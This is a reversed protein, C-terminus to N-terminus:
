QYAWTQFSVGPSTTFHNTGDSFLSNGTGSTTIGITFGPVTMETVQSLYATSYGALEIGISEVNFKINRLAVSVSNNSNIGQTVLGESSIIIESDSIMAEVPGSIAYLSIGITNDSLMVHDLTAVSFGGSSDNYFYIGSSNEGSKINTIFTNSVLLSMGSKVRVYVGNSLFNRISCNLVKLSGGTNFLVGNAASGAGDLTLGQLTVIDTPGANISIASGGSPVAIGAEVGGPNVISIAKTITVAGYGATDLVAIEGGANTQDHAHQFSRCPAALSCNNLDNGLGSVFSRTNQAQAPVAPLAAALALAVAIVITARTM